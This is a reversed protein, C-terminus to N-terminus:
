GRRVEQRFVSRLSSIGALIIILRQPHMLRQNSLAILCTFKPRTQTHQIGAMAYTEKVNHNSAEITTGLVEPRQKKQRSDRM